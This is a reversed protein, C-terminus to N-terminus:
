DERTIEVTYEDQGAGAVPKPVPPFYGGRSAQYVTEHGQLRPDDPEIPGKFGLAM